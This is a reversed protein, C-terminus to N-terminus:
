QVGGAVQAPALGSHPMKYSPRGRRKRTEPQPFDRLKDDCDRCYVGEHSQIRYWLCGCSECVKLQVSLEM